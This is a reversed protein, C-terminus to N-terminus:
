GDPVPDRSEALVSVKLHNVAEVVHRGRRRSAQLLRIPSAQAAGHGVNPGATCKSLKQPCTGAIEAQTTPCWVLPFRQLTDM